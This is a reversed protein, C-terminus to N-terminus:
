NGFMTNLLDLNPKQGPPQSDKSLNKHCKETGKTVHQCLVKLLALVVEVDKEIWSKFQGSWIM